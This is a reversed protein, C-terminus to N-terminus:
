ADVPQQKQTLLKRTYNDRIIGMGIKKMPGPEILKLDELSAAAIAAADHEAQGDPTLAIWYDNIAKMEKQDRDQRERDLRSQEAADHEAQRKTEARREREKLPLYGPPQGYDEEIATRLWGAPNKITQLTLTFDFYDIKQELYEAPYADAYKAALKGGLHRSTLERVVPLPEPRTAATLPPPSQHPLPETGTAAKRTFVIRDRGDQKLFRSQPPLSEIFQQEELPEVISQQVKSRLRAPKYKTTYGVHQYAFTELDFDQAEFGLLRLNLFRYARKASPTPLSLFKKLDFATLHGSKFSNFIRQSWTISCTRRIPPSGDLPLALQQRNHRRADRSQFHDLINFGEAPVHEGTIPDWWNDYFIVVGKLRRLAKDLRAYYEGNEAWGLLEFLEPREFQVTRTSARDSDGFGEAPKAKMTLYILAMVVDDDHPTPLGLSKPSTITVKRTVFVGPDHPHPASAQYEITDQKKAQRKDLIVLPLEALNKEDHSCHSGSSHAPDDMIRLAAIPEMFAYQPSSIHLFCAFSSRTKNNNNKKQFYYFLLL